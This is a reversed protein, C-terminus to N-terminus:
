PSMRISQSEKLTQMVAYSHTQKVGPLKSISEGLVERYHAIDRTRVLLMYDFHGAIMMCTQIEPINKVAINFKDLTRDIIQTLSIHVITMHSMGVQVPDLVARYDSIVGNKELRKVRESCPTKTLNVKEALDVISLRGNHQLEDLIKKDIVDLQRSM